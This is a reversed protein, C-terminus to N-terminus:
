HFVEEDSEKGSNRLELNNEREVRKVVQFLSAGSKKNRLLGRATAVGRRL